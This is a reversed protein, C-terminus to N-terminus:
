VNLNEHFLTKFQNELTSYYSTIGLSYETIVRFIMTEFKNNMRSSFFFFLFTCASCSLDNTITPVSLLKVKRVIEMEGFVGERKIM